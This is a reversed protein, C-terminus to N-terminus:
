PCSTVPNAAKALEIEEERARRVEEVDLEKRTLEDFIQEAEEGEFDDNIILTLVRKWTAEETDDNVKLHSYRELYGIIRDKLAAREGLSNIRAKKTSGQANELEDTDNVPAAAAEEEAKEEPTAAAASSGRLNRLKIKKGELNYHLVQRPLDNCSPISFAHCRGPHPFTAVRFLM